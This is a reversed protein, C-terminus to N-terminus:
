FLYAAIRMCMGTLGFGHGTFFQQRDYMFYYRLEFVRWSRLILYLSEAAYKLSYIFPGACFSTDIAVRWRIETTYRRGYKTWSATSLKSYLCNHRTFDHVFSFCTYHTCFVHQAAVSQTNKRPTSGRTHSNCVWGRVRHVRSHRNKISVFSFFLLRLSLVHRSHSITAIRFKVVFFALTYLNITM